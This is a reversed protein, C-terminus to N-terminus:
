ETNQSLSALIYMGVLEMGSSNAPRRARTVPPDRPMPAATAWRSISPPALTTVTERERVSSVGLVDVNRAASRRVASPALEATSCARCASPPRSMRTLLAPAARTCRSPFMESSSHSSESLM